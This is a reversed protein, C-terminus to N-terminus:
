ALEGPDRLGFKKLLRARHRRITRPSCGRIGAAEDPTCGRRLLALTALETATLDLWTPTKAITLLVIIHTPLPQRGEM